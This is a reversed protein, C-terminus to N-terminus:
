HSDAESFPAYAGGDLIRVEKTRSRRSLFRDLLTLPLGLYVILSMANGLTNDWSREFLFLAAWFVVLVVAVALERHWIVRLFFAYMAGMALGYLFIPVFM